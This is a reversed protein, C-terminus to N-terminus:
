PEDKPLDLQVLRGRPPPQPCDPRAGCGTRQKGRGLLRLRRVLYIVAAVVLALTVVDQWGIDM